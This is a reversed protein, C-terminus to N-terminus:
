SIFGKMADCLQHYEKRNISFYKTNKDREEHILGISRLQDLHHSVTSTVIGLEKALEKGFMPRQSLKQIIELRTNDGIIRLATAIRNKDYINVQQVPYILIQAQHHFTRMPRANYFYAPVFYYTRFDYVRKFKKGMMEQAVDLPVKSKLEMSVNAISESYINQDALCKEVEKNLFKLLDILKCTFEKTKEFAYRVNEWNYASLYKDKEILGHIADFNEILIDIKEKELEEGCLLYLFDRKPYDKLLRELSGMDEIPDYLLLEFLEFGQLRFGQLIDLFENQEHNLSIGLLERDKVIRNLLAIIEIYFLPKNIVRLEFEKEM